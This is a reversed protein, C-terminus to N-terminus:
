DRAKGITTNWFSEIGNYWHPPWQVVCDDRIDDFAILKARRARVLHEALRNYARETKEYGHQGVLRYFVQRVSLPLYNEYEELVKDVQELLVRTRAHPSWPAYGKPRRRGNERGATIESM